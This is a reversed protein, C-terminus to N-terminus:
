RLDMLMEVNKPDVEMEVMTLVHYEEGVDGRLVAVMVVVVVVVVIVGVVVVVKAVIFLLWM